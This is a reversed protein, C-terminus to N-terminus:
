TKYNQRLDPGTQSCQEFASRMLVYSRVHFYAHMRFFKVVCKLGVGWGLRKGFAALLTMTTAVYSLSLLSLSFNLTAQRGPIRQEKRTGTAGERNRIGNADRHDM